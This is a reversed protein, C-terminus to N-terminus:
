TFEVLWRMRQQDASYICYEADSFESPNKPDGHCSNFGDPPANMGYTIQKFVKMKGLAVDHITMIRRGGQGPSTYYISTCAADGFYIGNGLWGGDTRSGGMSVVLKPMLTGRTLLGVWNRIRSGHFLPKINGVSELFKEQEGPRVVKYVNKINMSRSKVRSNLTFNKWRQYEESEPALWELECGLAKYKHGLDDSVLVSHDEGDVELMDRMLQLTEEKEAIKSLSNIVAVQTAARTRGIKHPIATYFKSSLAELEAETEKAIIAKHLDALISQGTEIQGLTLVGLPTEIGNATIKAQVTHVLASTAEAYILSILERLTPPCTETVVAPPKKARAITAADVEGSSSGRAKASGINSKALSLEVYGKRSGTKAKYLRNYEAEASYQNEFFRCEKTGANPNTQLDDTRGYHTFVRFSSGAKHLELSYYKNNNNKIDTKQLTTLKLVEYEEPFSPAKPDTLKWVKPNPM